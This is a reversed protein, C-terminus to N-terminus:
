KEGEPNPDARSIELDKALEDILRGKFAQYLEELEVSDVMSLFHIKIEGHQKEKFFKKYDPM